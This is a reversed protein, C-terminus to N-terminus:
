VEYYGVIELKPLLEKIKQCAEKPNKATIFQEKGGKYIIYYKKM